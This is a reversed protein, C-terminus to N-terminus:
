LQSNKDAFFDDILKQEDLGPPPFNFHLKLTKPEAPKLKLEDEESSGIASVHEDSVGFVRCLYTRLELLCARSVILNRTNQSDETDDVDDGQQEILETIDETKTDLLSTLSCVELMNEFSLAAINFSFIIIPIKPFVDGNSVLYTLLANKYSNFIKAPKMGVSRALSQVKPLFLMNNTLGQEKLWKAHEIGAKIGTSLNSFRMSTNRMFINELVTLALKSTAGNPSGILAIITPICNAPNTYGFDLVLEVFKLAVSSLRLDELLAIRLVYKLYRSSIASCVADSSRPAVISRSRQLKLTSLRLPRTLELTRQEESMFFESLCQVVVLNTDLSRTAFEKDLVSLVLRSNFLRPYATAVKLLNRLASKRLTLDVEFRTFVLLCKTVYEFIPERTKLHPFKEETNTFDCFRAFGAALYLLRQLKGDATVSASDKTSSNIYPSLLALCSSCAKSVRTDDGRHHAISWCLPIAEDIERVSMKPLRGLVISELDLLFKNRFYTLKSFSTKFVKLVYYQLDSQESSLLYPYLTTIHDKTIFAHECASIISLFHFVNIESKSESGQNTHAYQSNIAEDVLKSTIFQTTFRIEERAQEDHLSENLVYENLFNDFLQSDGKDYGIVASIVEIVEMARNAQAETSQGTEYVNLFWRDILSKQAKEVISDEEDETKRLIRSAVFAKVDIDSANDYADLNLKLVHKRVMTSEDDYNINILQYYRTYQTSGLLDLIADKVSPSSDKLRQEIVSKVSPVALLDPDNAILPALCKIAGSRLKIKQRDLLSLILRVYPEFLNILESIHLTAFYSSQFNHSFQSHKSIKEGSSTASSNRLLKLIEAGINERLASDIDEFESLTTLCAMQRDWFAHRSSTDRDSHCLVSLCKEFDLMVSQLMAPSQLIGAISFKESKESKLKIDQIVSGISGMIQLVSSERASNNQQSPSFVLLMRKFLSALLPEAISWHPQVVMAILDQVFNELIFRKFANPTFCKNLVSQNIHDIFTSLQTQQEKFIDLFEDVSQDNVNEPLPLFKSSNLSQLMRAITVFLHTAYFTDDVKQLKKQIRNTPLSDLRFLLEDLIFLRQTPLSEFMAILSASSERRLSELWTSLSSLGGINPPNFTLLDSLLYVLKTILEEEQMPKKQIYSSLLSLVSRLQLCDDSTAGRSTNDESLSDNIRSLFSIASVIYRELYLRKDKVDILFIMFVVTACKFAISNLHGHDETKLIVDISESCIRMLKSLIGADVIEELGPLGSINKLAILIRDLCIDSLVRSGEAKTWYLQNNLGISEEDDHISNILVDLDKFHQSSVAAQDLSFEESAFKAKKPAARLEVDAYDPDYILKSRVLLSGDNSTSRQRKMDDLCKFNLFQRATDSLGEFLDMSLDDQSKTSFVQIEKFSFSEKGDMDLRPVTKPHKESVRSSSSEKFVVEDYVPAVRLSSRLLECLGSKPVLFNLPQYELCETLRKPINTKDGPFTAM